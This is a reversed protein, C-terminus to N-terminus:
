SFTRSFNSFSEVTVALQLPAQHIYSIDLFFLVLYSIDSLKVVKVACCTVLLELTAVDGDDDDGRISGYGHQSNVICFLHYVKVGVGLITTQILGVM